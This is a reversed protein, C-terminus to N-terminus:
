RHVGKRLANRAAALRDAVTSKPLSLFDAAERATMGRLDILIFAERQDAPLERIAADFTTTFLNEDNDIADALHLTDVSTDGVPTEVDRRTGLARLFDIARRDTITRLLAAPEAVGGREVTRTLEILADQVIDERHDAPVKHRKRLRNLALTRLADIDTTEM